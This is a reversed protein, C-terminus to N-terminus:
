VGSCCCLGSWKYLTPKQKGKLKDRIVRVENSRKSTVVRNLARYAETLVAAQKETSATDNGNYDLLKERMKNTAM